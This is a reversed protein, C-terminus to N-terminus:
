FRQFADRMLYAKVSRLNYRMLESLKVAQKETLNEPRKLLWWRSHKLERGRPKGSETGPSGRCKGPRGKRQAEEDLSVSGFHESCGFGKDAIVKMDYRWLETCIFKLRALASDPSTELLGRLGQETRDKMVYLLGRSDHDIQYVFTLLKQGLRYAIEDIGIAEVRQIERYRRGFPPDV